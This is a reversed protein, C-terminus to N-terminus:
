GVGARWSEVVLSPQLLHRVCLEQTANDNDHPAAWAHKDIEARHNVPRKRGLLLHLPQSSPGLEEQSDIFCTISYMLAAICCRSSALLGMRVQETFGRPHHFIFSTVRLSDNLQSEIFKFFNERKDFICTELPIRHLAMVFENVETSMTDNVNSSFVGITSLRKLSEATKSLATAANQTDFSIRSNCAM